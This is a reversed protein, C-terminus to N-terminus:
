LCPRSFRTCLSQCCKWGSDITWKAAKREFNPCNLVGMPISPTFHAFPVPHVGTSLSIIANTSIAILGQIVGFAAVLKWSGTSFDPVCDKKVLAPFMTQIVSALFHRIQFAISHRFGTAPDALPISELLLNALLCPAPTLILIVIVKWRPTELRFREFM